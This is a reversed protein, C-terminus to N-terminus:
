ALQQINWHKMVILMPGGDNRRGPQDVCQMERTTVDFRGPEYAIAGTSRSDGTQFQELRDAERGVVDDEAIGFAHDILAAGVAHVM